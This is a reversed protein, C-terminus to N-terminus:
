ATGVLPGNWVLTPAARPRSRNDVPLALIASICHHLCASWSAPCGPSLLGLRHVFHLYSCTFSTTPMPLRAVFEPCHLSPRACTTEKGDCSCFCCAAPAAPFQGPQLAAHHGGTHLQAGHHACCGAVVLSHGPRVCHVWSSARQFVRAWGAPWPRFNRRCGHIIVLHVHLQM